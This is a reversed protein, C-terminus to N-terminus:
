TGKLKGGCPRFEIAGKQFCKKLSDTKLNEFTGKDHIKVRGAGYEGEPIIGEFTAYGLPHDETLIALHKEGIHKPMGKPVAWSKLIGGMELRLDYHVSRARHKQIVYLPGM